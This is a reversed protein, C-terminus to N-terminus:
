FYILESKFYEINEYDYKFLKEYLYDLLNHSFDFGIQTQLEFLTQYRNNHCNICINEIVSSKNCSCITNKCDMYECINEIECKKCKM